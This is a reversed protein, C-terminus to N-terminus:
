RQAAGKASVTGPQGGNPFNRDLQIVLGQAGPAISVLDQWLVEGRPDHIALLYTGAQLGHLEFSGDPRVAAGRCEQCSSAGRVEVTLEGSLWLGPTRVEGHVVSSLDATQSAATWAATLFLVFLTLGCHFRLARSFFCTM